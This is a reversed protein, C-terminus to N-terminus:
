TDLIYMIEITTLTFPDGPDKSSDPALIDATPAKSNDPHLYIRTEVKTM